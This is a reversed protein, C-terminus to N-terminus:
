RGKPSCTSRTGPPTCPKMASIAPLSSSPPRGNVQLGRGAADTLRLWRVDTKHGYEQPMIYPVYEHTVTSHYVGVMAAAKRDSYNEWPGRGYWTLQELAPPLM